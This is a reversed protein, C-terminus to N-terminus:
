PRAAAPVVDGSALIMAWYPRASGPAVAMAIGVRRHHPNAMIDVHVPSGAWWRFMGTAEAFTRGLTEGAYVNTIGEAALRARLDGALEHGMMDGAAMVHAQKLAARTVLADLAVPPLQREARFRNLAEVMGATQPGRFQTLAAEDLV